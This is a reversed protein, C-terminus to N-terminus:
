QFVRVPLILYLYDDGHQPVVVCPSVSSNFKMCLEDDPVNRIVDTIYRANFAIEVPEGNLQADLEEEVDGLEANSTIKLMDNKFSMRILNNKGERAMLSAREIASQVSDKHTLAETKFDTPLIRRYDIYEGALLVSSLRINGFTCQM